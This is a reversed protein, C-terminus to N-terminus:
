EKSGIVPGGPVKYKGFLKGLSARSPNEAAKRRLLSGAVVKERQRLLALKSTEIL